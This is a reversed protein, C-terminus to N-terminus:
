TMQTIKLWTRDPHSRELVWIPEIVGAELGNTVGYLRAYHLNQGEVPGKWLHGEWDIYFCTEM